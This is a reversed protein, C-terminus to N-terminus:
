RAPAGELAHLLRQVGPDSPMLGALKRAYVRAGTIDGGERALSVLAVLVNRDAPHREHTASLLERAEHRAGTAHLALAYVYAYRATGPALDFAQRLEGIAEPYVKRRILALGLAHHVAANGPAIEASRRLLEEGKADEGQARFLDALNVFGPVFSPDLRLATEYEARAEERRGQRIELLGLNIHAEPRDSDVNEAAVLEVTAAAFDTRQEPTWDQQAIGALARAAEIRVARVPDRLLASAASALAPSSSPGLARAAALRVLPSADVIASRIAPESVATAFPPLLALASARAIAPQARDGALAALRREADASGKRGADLAAAFHPVTHRGGPYWAAVALAAWAATKDRHCSTCANPTGIAASLDPRPVRFGHDRRADISMYTKAPMHCGVCLAGTSEPRHHHHATTDFKEALHCQGCLANGRARLTLGHPDHCDSCRVGARYMRSQLFSGYEFVEGDIQGDAHYLGPELLAPLYHDLFTAGTPPNGTIPKRRSHCPFCTDLQHDAPPAVREAIGSDLKMRWQAASTRDLRVTLGTAAAPRGDKAAAKAREVHVSGPGHCAECAVNIDCWRTAYSDSALDYTKRLDTSHCAACQYNWTQDRGTWHLPDGPKPDTGPYLHFWRQGGAEKPRSDWAIGFAQFRGSPMPILYQQLPSVGFTYAVPFDGPKGDAGVTSVVLTDGSRHFRTSSGAHDFTVDGFDGLVTAPTASQMAKAHHSTAWREAEAAHCTSCVGAGVFSAGEEALSEATPLQLCALLAAARLVSM